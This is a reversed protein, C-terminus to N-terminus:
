KGWTIFSLIERNNSNLYDDTRNDSIILNEQENSRFTNSLAWEKIEYGKGDRGVVVARLNFNLLQNTISNRGGELKLALSKSLIKTYKIKSINEFSIMFANTRIHANPFSTYSFLLVAIDKIHKIKSFIGKINKYEQIYNTVISEYSGTAGVIGVDHLKCHNYFNILWNSTLIKCYHNTFFYFNYNFMKSSNFYVDLDYGIDEITLKKYIIKELLPNLQNLNEDKDFGKLILILDHIIGAEFNIYSTLFSNLYMPSNGKRILHIVAIKKM